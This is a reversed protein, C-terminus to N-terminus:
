KPGQWVFRPDNAGSEGARHLFPSIGAGDGTEGEGWMRGAKAGSALGSIKEIAEVRDGGGDGM